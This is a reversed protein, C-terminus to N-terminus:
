KMKIKLTIETISEQDDEDVIKPAIGIIIDTGLHFISAMFTDVMVHKVTITTIACRDAVRLLEYFFCNSHKIGNITILYSPDKVKEFEGTKIIGSEVCSQCRYIHDDHEFTGNGECTECTHVIEQDIYPIQKWMDIFVKLPIAADLNYPAIIRALDPFKHEPAPIINDKTLKVMIFTHPTAATNWLQGMYETPFISKLTQRENDLYARMITNTLELNM